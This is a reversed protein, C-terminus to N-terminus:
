DRHEHAKRLIFLNLYWKGGRVDTIILTNQTVPNQLAVRQQLMHSCQWKVAGPPRPAVQLASMLVTYLYTASNIIIILFLM